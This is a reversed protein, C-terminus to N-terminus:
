IKHRLIVNFDEVRFFNYKIFLYITVIKINDSLLGHILYLETFM